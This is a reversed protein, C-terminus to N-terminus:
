VAFVHTHMDWFAPILYKGRGDIPRADSPSPASAPAVSRIRGGEVTVTQAPVITGARVDVVAVDTIAFAGSTRVADLRKVPWAVGVSFMVALVALTVLLVLLSRKLYRM